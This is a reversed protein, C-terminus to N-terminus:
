MRVRSARPSWAVHTDGCLTWTERDQAPTVDGPHGKKPSQYHNKAASLPTTRV